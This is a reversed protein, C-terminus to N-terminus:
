APIRENKDASINFTHIITVGDDDYIDVTLGDVSVIAKNTTHKRVEILDAPQLLGGLDVTCGAGSNDTVESIGRVTITGAVCTSDIIVQGSAMDISCPSTDTKDFLELGGNWARIALSTDTNGFSLKPTNGAGPVASYCELFMAVDAGGLTILTGTIASEYIVGNVYSIGDVICSRLINGGDLVGAVKCERFECNVVNAGDQIVVSTLIANQGIIRLNALDDAATLTTDQLLQITDFGKETAIAVCDPINNCPHERTGSPFETTSNDSTSDYWVANQYSSYQIAELDSLTASASSTKVVQTFATPYIPNLDAGVSDVAVLNGGGADCSIYEPGSRAEFALRANLLTVTLGVLVGGGLPEKGSASVISPDDMNAVKAEENRLTDILDQMVMETSPADVTIIRPSVEWNITVDNRISM